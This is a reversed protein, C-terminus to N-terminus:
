IFMETSKERDYLFMEYEIENLLKIYKKNKNKSMVKGNNITNIGEKVIDVISMDSKAYEYSLIFNFNNKDEQKLVVLNENWEKNEKNKRQYDEFTLKWNNHKKYWAVKEDFDKDHNNIMSLNLNKKNNYYFSICASSIRMDESQTQWFDDIFPCTFDIYWLKNNKINLINFWDWLPVHNLNKISSTVEEMNYDWTAFVYKDDIIVKTFDEDNKIDLVRRKIHKIDKKRKSM